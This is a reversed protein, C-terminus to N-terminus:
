LDVLRINGFREKRIEDGIRRQKGKHEANQLREADEEFGEELCREYTKYLKLTGTNLSKPRNELDFPKNKEFRKKNHREAQTMDSM